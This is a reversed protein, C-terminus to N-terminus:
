TEKVSIKKDGVKEFFFPPSSIPEMQGELVKHGIWLENIFPNQFLKAYINVMIMCCSPPM